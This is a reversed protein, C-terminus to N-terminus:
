GADIALAHAEGAAPLLAPRDRERPLPAGDDVAPIDEVSPLRGRLDTGADVLAGLRDGVERAESGPVAFRDHHQPGLRRRELGAFFAEGFVKCPRRLPLSSGCVLIAELVPPLSDLREVGADTLHVVEAELVAPVRVM